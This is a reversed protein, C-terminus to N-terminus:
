MYDEQFALVMLYSVCLVGRSCCQFGLYTSWFGPIQWIWGDIMFAWWVQERSLQPARRDKGIRQFWSPSFNVCRAPYEVSGEPSVLSTTLLLINITAFASLGLNLRVFKERSVPRDELAQQLM